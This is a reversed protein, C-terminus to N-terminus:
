VWWSHVNFCLWPCSELAKVAHQKLQHVIISIGPEYHSNHLALMQCLKPLYIWHKPFLFKYLLDISMVQSATPAWMINGVFHTRRTLLWFSLSIFFGWFPDSSKKDKRWLNSLSYACSSNIIIPSTLYHCSCFHTCNELNLSNYCWLCKTM